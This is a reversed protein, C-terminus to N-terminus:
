GCLHFGQNSLLTEPSINDTQRSDHTLGECLIWQLKDIGNLHDAAFAKLVM